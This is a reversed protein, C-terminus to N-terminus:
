ELIVQAKTSILTRYAEEYSKEFTAAYITEEYTKGNGNEFLFIPNNLVRSIEHSLLGRGRLYNYFHIEELPINNGQSDYLFGVADLIQEFPGKSYHFVRSYERSEGIIEESRLEEVIDTIMHQLEAPGFSTRFIMVAIDTAYTNKNLIGPIDYNIIYVDGLRKITQGNIHFVDKLPVWLRFLEERTYGMRKMAEFAGYIKAKEFPVGFYRSFERKMYPTFLQKGRKTFLLKLRYHEEIIRHKAIFDGPLNAMYAIRVQEKYEPRQRLVRMMASEVQIGNTEPRLYLFVDQCDSTRCNSTFPIVVTPLRVKTPGM